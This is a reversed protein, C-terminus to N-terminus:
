PTVAMAALTARGLDQDGTITVSLQDPTRRGAALVTFAETSMELTATPQDLSDVRQARGDEGVQVALDLPVEGRVDWRVISGAPPRVVKGLVYPMAFSFTMAAVQAGTSDLGGHRGVARRIDQEHVWVDIARNRLLTDWTWALGAPTIPALERPDEPLETLQRARQEVATAFEALLEVPSRDERVAVGAETYSSVVERAGSSEFSGQEGRCLDVELHALHAVVDKVTWGPCDTPTAWDTENLDAGLALVADAAEGWGRVYTELLNV